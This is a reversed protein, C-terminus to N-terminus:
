GSRKTFGPHKYPIVPVWCRWEVAERNLKASFAAPCCLVIDELILWSKTTDGLPTFVDMAVMDFM